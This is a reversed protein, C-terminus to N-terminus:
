DLRAKMSVTGLRTGSPEYRPFVDTLKSRLWSSMLVSVNGVTLWRHGGSTSPMMTAGAMGLTGLVRRTGQADVGTLRADAGVTAVLRTFSLVTWASMTERGWLELGGRANVTGTSKIIDIRGDAIPFRFRWASATLRLTAPSTALPAIGGVFMAESQAPDTVFSVTGGTVTTAAHAPAAAVAGLLCLAIIVAAITGFLAQIGRAQGSLGDM